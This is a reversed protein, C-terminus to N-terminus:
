AVDYQSKRNTSDVETEDNDVSRTTSVHVQVRRMPMSGITDTHLNQENTGPQTGILHLRIRIAIANFTIGVIPVSSQLLLNQANNHMSYLILLIIQTVLQLAASELFIRLVSIIKSKETNYRSSKQHTSWLRYGMLGTTIINLAVVVSFFSRIWSNLRGDFIVTTPDATIYLVLIIIEAVINAILLLSPLVIMKWDRDWLIWTRYIAAAGGLNEQTPYLTDALVRHWPTLRGLFAVAGGQNLDQGIYAILVRYWNVVLHLTAIIFMISSAIIMVAKDTMDPLTVLPFIFSCPQALYVSSSDQKLKLKNEIITPFHKGYVLAEFGAALLFSRDLALQGAM